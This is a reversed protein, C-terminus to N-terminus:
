ENTVAVDMKVNGICSQIIITEANNHFVRLGVTRVMLLLFDSISTKSCYEYALTLVQAAQRRRRGDPTGLTV